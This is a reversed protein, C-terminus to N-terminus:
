LDQIDHRSAQQAGSIILIGLVALLESNTTKAADYSSGYRERIKEIKQNTHDTIKTILSPPMFLSFIDLPTKCNKAAGLPGSKETVINRSSRRVNARFPTEKWEIGSKALLIREELDEDADSENSEDSLSGEQESESDHESEEVVEEECESDSYEIEVDSEDSDHELAELVDIIRKTAM